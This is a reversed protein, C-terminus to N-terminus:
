LNPSKKTHIRKQWYIYSIILLSFWFLVNIITGISDGVCIHTVAGAILTIGFGAYAWEKIRIPFKSVLLIIVGIIKVIALEIRFYQPFGFHQFKNVFQPDTLYATSTLFLFACFLGTSIWFIIKDRKMKLTKCRKLTM